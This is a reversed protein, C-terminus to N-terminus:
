AAVEIELSESLLELLIHFLGAFIILQKLLFAFKGLLDLLKGLGDLLLLILVRLVAILSLLVNGAEALLDVFEVYLGLQVDM